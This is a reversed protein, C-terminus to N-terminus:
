EKHIDSNGSELEDIHLVCDRIFASFDSGSQIYAERGSTLHRILYREVAKKDRTFRVLFSCDNIPVLEATDVRVVQLEAIGQQSTHQCQLIISFFDNDV